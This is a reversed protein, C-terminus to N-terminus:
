IPTYVDGFAVLVGGTLTAITFITDAHLDKRAYSIADALVLRGEADTNTIEITYGDYSKLVDNVRYANPGIENSALPLLGSVNAVIELKAAAYITAAVIAAASMDANMRAMFPSPKLNLGGTDFVLGKGILTLLKNNTKKNKQYHLHMICPTNQATSAQGVALILGMQKQMLIKQDLIDISLNKLGVMKQKILAIFKSTTLMNGPMQMLEM